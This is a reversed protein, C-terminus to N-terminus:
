RASPRASTKVVQEAMVLVAEASFFETLAKGHALTCASNRLVHAAAFTILEFRRKDMPRHIETLLRGLARASRGTASSKPM